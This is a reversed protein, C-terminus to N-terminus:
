EGRKGLLCRQRATRHVWTPQVQLPRTYLMLKFWFSPNKITAWLLSTILTTTHAQYRRQPYTEETASKMWGSSSITHTLEQTTSDVQNPIVQGACHFLNTQIINKNREKKISISLAYHFQFFDCSAQTACWFNWIVKNFQLIFCITASLRLMFPNWILAM